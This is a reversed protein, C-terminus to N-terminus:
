SRYCIRHILAGASLITSAPWARAIRVASGRAAPPACQRPVSHWAWLAPGPEASLHGQRLEEAVAEVKAGMFTSAAPRRSDDKIEDPLRNFEGISKLRQHIPDKKTSRTLGRVPAPTVNAAVGLERLHEAFQERWQRLTAKRIHLRQSAEYEHEAKVVLHVHPHAQDTHLVMACRYQLAFSERAVRRAAELVVDPTTKGPM